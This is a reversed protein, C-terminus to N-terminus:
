WCKLRNSVSVAASFTQSPVQDHTLEAYSPDHGALEGMIRRSILGNFVIGDFEIM